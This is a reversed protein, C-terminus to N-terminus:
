VVAKFSDFLVWWCVTLDPSSRINVEREPKGDWPMTPTTPMSSMRFIEISPLVVNKYEPESEYKNHKSSHTLINVWSLDQTNLKKPFKDPKM